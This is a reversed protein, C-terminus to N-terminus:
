ATAKETAGKATATEKVPKPNIVIKRKVLEEVDGERIIGEENASYAYGYPVGSEVFQVAVPNKKDESKVFPPLKVNNAM